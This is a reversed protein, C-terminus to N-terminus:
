IYGLDELQKKIAEDVGVETSPLSEITFRKAIENVETMLSHYINRRKWVLNNKEYPDTEMNFVKDPLYHLLNALLRRKWSKAVPNFIEKYNNLKTYKTILKYNNNRMSVYPYGEAACWRESVTDGKFFPLLSTGDMVNNCRVGLIDLITPCIDMLQVTNAIRGRYKNNFDIILPVHILEEYLTLGHGFVGHEMFAQGHDALIIFLYNKSNNKVIQHLEGVIRDIYCIGADYAALLYKIQEKTLRTLKTNIKAMVKRMNKSAITRSTLSDVVPSTAMKEPDIDDELFRKIYQKDAYFPEHIYEGIHLLLFSKEYSTIWQELAKPLNDKVKLQKTEKFHSCFCDPNLLGKFFTFLGTQYSSRALLEPLVMVKENVRQDWWAIKLSSPYRGTIMSYLSPYTWNSQSIANEFILSETAIADINPSTHKPYGYCGLHDARLCDLLIICINM